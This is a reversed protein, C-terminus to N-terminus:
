LLFRWVLSRHRRPEQRPFSSSTSREMYVDDYAGGCPETYTAQPSGKKRPNLLCVGISGAEFAMTWKISRCSTNLQCETQCDALTEVLENVVLAMENVNSLCGSEPPNWGAAFITAFPIIIIIITAIVIVIAIIIMIVIINHVVIVVFIGSVETPRWQAGTWIFSVTTTQTGCPLRM